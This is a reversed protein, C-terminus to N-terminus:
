EIQRSYFKLWSLQRDHQQRSMRLVSNLFAESIAASIQPSPSNPPEIDLGQVITHPAIQPTAEQTLYFLGPVIKGSLEPFTRSTVHASGAWPEFEPTRSGEWGSDKGAMLGYLHSLWGPFPVLPMFPCVLPNFYSLVVDHLASQEPIWGYIWELLM